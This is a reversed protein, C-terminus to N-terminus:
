TPRRRLRNELAKHLRGRVDDPLPAPQSNCFVQVTKRTMDVVLRCDECHALHREVEALLLPDSEGNLYDSLEKVLDKCKM